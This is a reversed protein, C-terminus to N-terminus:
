SSCSYALAYFTQSVNFRTEILISVLLSSSKRESQVGLLNSSSACNLPMVEASTAAVLPARADINYVKKGGDSVSHCLLCPCPLRVSPSPV